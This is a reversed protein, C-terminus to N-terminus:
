ITKQLWSKVRKWRKRGKDVNEMNEQCFDLFPNKRTKENMKPKKKMIHGKKM